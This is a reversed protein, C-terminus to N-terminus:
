QLIHKLESRLLRRYQEHDMLKSVSEHCGKILQSRITEDTLILEIAEAMKEPNKNEVTYGNYGSKVTYPMASNDFCVIPLGYKMVECLVMGFGELLSPFVFISAHKLIQDKEDDSVYGLFDVNLGNNDVETKLRDYYAHDKVKGVMNLHYRIDKLQLIKLADMLYTLGKRPEITGMYLLEEKKRAKTIEVTQKAFPITWLRINHNRFKEKCLDHIYPSVTVIFSSSRLFTTELHKYVLRKIGEFEMFLFHHHIIAVEKHFILRLIYALLTFYWGNVSNLIILDYKKCLSIYKLNTIPSMLKKLFSRKQIINYHEVEYEAYGRMCTYMFKEYVQGGTVCEESRNNYLLLIKKM